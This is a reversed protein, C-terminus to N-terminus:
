LTSPDVIVAGVMIDEVLSALEKLKACQMLGNPNVNKLAKSSALAVMSTLVYQILSEMVTVIKTFILLEGMAAGTNSEIVFVDKATTVNRARGNAKVDPPCGLSVLLVMRTQAFLTLSETKTVIWLHSPPDVTVAGVM